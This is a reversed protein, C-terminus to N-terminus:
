DGSAVEASLESREAARRLGAQETICLPQGTVKSSGNPAEAAPTLLLGTTKPPGEPPFRPAEEGKEGGPGRRTGQWGGGWSSAGQSGQASPCTDM